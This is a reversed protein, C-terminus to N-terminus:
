LTMGGDITIIQGTMYALKDSALMCVLEAVEDPEAFRHMPIDKLYGNKVTEPIPNLMETRVFGPAVANVRIGKEAFEKALSLTMSNVAGKTSAYVSQGNLAHSASVSSMNIIVGKKKPLMKLAAQQACYFYGKVNLDFSKNISEESIMLLYGVEAVGANNVLLDLGGFTKVVDKMLKKVEALKTVDAKFLEANGGGDIIEKKVEEAKADNKAYNIAVAYGNQALKIACARGIGSSAGTILATKM